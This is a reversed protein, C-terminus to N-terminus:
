KIALVHLLIIDFWKVSICDRGNFLGVISFKVPSALIIHKM